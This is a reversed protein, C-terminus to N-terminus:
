VRGPKWVALEGGPMSVLRLGAPGVLTWSEFEESAPVRLEADDAFRLSLQGDRSAMVEIVGTHLVTLAAQLMKPDGGPECRVDSGVRRVVFAQEIRVEFSEAEGSVVLTFGYDVCCRTVAADALSVLWGGSVEILEVGRLTV